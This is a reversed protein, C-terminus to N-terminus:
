ATGAPQLETGLWGSPHAFGPVIPAGNGHQGVCTRMLNEKVASKGLRGLSEHKSRISSLDGCPLYSPVSLKLVRNTMGRNTLATIQNESADSCRFRTGGRLVCYVGRAYRHTEDM